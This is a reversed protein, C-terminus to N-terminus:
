NRTRSRSAVSELLAEQGMQKLWTTLLVEREALVKALPAIDITLTASKLSLQGDLSGLAEELFESQRAWDPEHVNVVIDIPRVSVNGEPQAYNWDQAQKRASQISERMSRLLSRRGPAVKRRWELWDAITRTQEGITITASQAVARVARRVALRHDELAKLSQMEQAVMAASGGTSALSDRLNAPRVALALLFAHQLTLHRNIAEIEAFAETLTM